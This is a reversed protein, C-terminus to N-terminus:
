SKLQSISGLRRGRVVLERIVSMVWHVWCWVGLVWCMEGFFRWKDDSSSMQGGGSPQKAEREREGRGSLLQDTSLKEEEGYPLIEERGV